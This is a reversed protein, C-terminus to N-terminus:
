FLVPVLDKCGRIGIKANILSQDTEEEQIWKIIQLPFNVGALHSFPYQGGFRCNMELIILEENGETLFCDIDLNAIHKLNCSIEKSISVFPKSDVIEAIDTEGARMAIKKKAVTTIYNGQLDNFIDLGYEQGDIVEQIIICSTMTKKSEYKLYSNFIEKYIKKYFVRLENKNEAYYIGISGMGWRPKIIVPYKLDKNKLANIADDLHLFTLPQKLGLNKLFLFTNWKDNCINLVEIKSVILKIGNGEFRSKNLALIPLDIDFLSIVVDIDNGICYTLLADIYNAEYISPTIFYKDAQLLSYSLISNSAHVLGTGKLAEKFYNIMYTRRGVSTLLINM